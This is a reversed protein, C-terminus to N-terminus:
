SQDDGFDLSRASDKKQQYHSQRPFDTKFSSIGSDNHDEQDDGDDDERDSSITTTPATRQGIRTEVKESEMNYRIIEM